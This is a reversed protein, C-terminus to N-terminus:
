KLNYDKKVEEWDKEKTKLYEVTLICSVIVPVIFVLGLIIWLFCVKIRGAFVLVIQLISGAVIFIIGCRAYYRQQLTSKWTDSIGKYTSTKLVDSLSMRLIGLVSLITGFAVEIIGLVTLLEIIM